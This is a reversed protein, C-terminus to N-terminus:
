SLAVVQINEISCLAVKIVSSYLASLPPCHFLARQLATGAARARMSYYSRLGAAPGQSRRLLCSVLKRRPPGAASAVSRVCLPRAAQPLLMHRFRMCARGEYSAPLGPLCQAGILLELGRHM